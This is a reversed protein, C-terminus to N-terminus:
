VLAPTERPTIKGEPSMQCCRSVSQKEWRADKEMDRPEEAEGLFPSKHLCQAWVIM